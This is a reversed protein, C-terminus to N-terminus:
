ASPPLYRADPLRCPLRGILGDSASEARRPRAAGGTISRAIIHEPTTKEVVGELALLIETPTATTQAAIPASSANEPGAVAVERELRRAPEGDVSAEEVLAVAAVTAAPPKWVQAIVPAPPTLHQPPLRKPWIPSSWFQPPKQKVGTSTEPRVVPTLASVAPFVCLQAIV